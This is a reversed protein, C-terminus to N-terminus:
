KYSGFSYKQNDPLYKAQTAEAEQVLSYDRIAEEQAMNLSDSM